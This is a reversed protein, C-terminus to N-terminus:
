RPPTARFCDNKHVTRPQLVAQLRTHRSGIKTAKGIETLEGWMRPAVKSPLRRSEVLNSITKKAEKWSYSHPKNLM